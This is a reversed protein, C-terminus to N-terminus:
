IPNNNNERPTLVRFVKLAPILKLMVIPLDVVKDIYQKQSDM